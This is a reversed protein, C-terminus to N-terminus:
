ICNASAKVRITVHTHTHTHPNTCPENKKRHIQVTHRRGCTYVMILCMYERDIRHRSYRELRLIAFHKLRARHIDSMTEEVIMRANYVHSTHSSAYIYTCCLSLHINSDGCLEMYTTSKPIANKDITLLCHFLRIHTNAM